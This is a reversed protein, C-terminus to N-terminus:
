ITSSRPSMLLSMTANETSPTTLRYFLKFVLGPQVSVHFIEHYRMAQKSDRVVPFERELHHPDLM